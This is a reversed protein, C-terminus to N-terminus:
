FIRNTLPQYELIHEGHGKLKDRGFKSCYLVVCPLRHAFIDLIQNFNGTKKIKIPYNSLTKHGPTLKLSEEIGGFDSLVGIIEFLYRSTPYM